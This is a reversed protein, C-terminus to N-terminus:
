VYCQYTWWQLIAMDRAVRPARGVKAGRSGQYRSVKKATRKGTGKKLHMRMKKSAAIDPNMVAQVLAFPAYMLELSSCYPHDLHAVLSLKLGMCCVTERNHNFHSILLHFSEEVTIFGHSHCLGFDVQPHMQMQISSSYANALDVQQPFNLEM